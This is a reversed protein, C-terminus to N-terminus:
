SERARLRAALAPACLMLVLGLGMFGGRALNYDSLMRDPPYGLATGLGFEFLVTLVVWVLGVRFQAGRTEAGIWRITAWAILLVIATGVAVGLQRSPLDGMVPAIWLQRITGHVSEAVIILFWAALARGWNM